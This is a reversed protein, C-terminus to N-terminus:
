KRQTRARQTTAVRKLRERAGSAFVLPFRECEGFGWADGRKVDYSHLPWCKDVLRIVRGQPDDVKLNDSLDRRRPAVERYSLRM